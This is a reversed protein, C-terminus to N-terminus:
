LYINQFVIFLFIKSKVCNLKGTLLFRHNRNCKTNEFLNNSIDTCRPVNLIKKIEPGQILKVM